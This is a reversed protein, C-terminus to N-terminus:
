VYSEEKEKYSNKDIKTYSNYEKLMLPLNSLLRRTKDSPEIAIATIQNDIDPERFISYKINSQQLKYIILNLSDENEVSLQALYPDKFWNKSIESHEFVFQVLAHSSQIAQYGPALDRRTVTTLKYIQTM